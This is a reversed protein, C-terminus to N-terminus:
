AAERLYSVRVPAAKPARRKRKPYRHPEGGIKLSPTEEMLDILQERQKVLTELRVRPLEHELLPRRTLMM